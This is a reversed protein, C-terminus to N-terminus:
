VRLDFQAAPWLPMYATEYAPPGDLRIQVAEVNDPVRLIVFVGGIERRVKAPQWQTDNGEIQFRCECRVQDARAGLPRAVDEPLITIKILRGARRKWEGVIESLRVIGSIPDAPDYDVREFGVDSPLVPVNVEYLGVAVKNQLRAHGFEQLVWPHTVNQPDNKRITLLAILADTEGILRAIEPTIPGGGLARGNVAVLGHSRLLAEVHTVLTRDQAAFSHSLFVKRM